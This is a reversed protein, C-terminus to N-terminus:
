NNAVAKELPALKEKATQIEKKFYFYAGVGIAIFLAAVGMQIAFATGVATYYASFVLAIGVLLAVTSSFSKDEMAGINVRLNRIKDDVSLETSTNQVKTRFDPGLIAELDRDSLAAM